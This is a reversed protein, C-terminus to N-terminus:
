VLDEKSADDGTEQVEPQKLLEYFESGQVPIDEVLMSDSTTANPDQIDSDPRTIFATKDNEVVPSQQSSTDAIQPEDQYVVEQDDNAIPAESISPAASHSSSSSEGATEQKPLNSASSQ